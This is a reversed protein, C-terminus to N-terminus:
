LQRVVSRESTVDLIYTRQTRNETLLGRKVLETVVLVARAAECCSRVIRPRQRRLCPGRLLCFPFSCGRGSEIAPRRVGGAGAPRGSRGSRPLRQRPPRFPIQM